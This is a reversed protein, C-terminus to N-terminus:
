EPLASEGEVLRGVLRGSGDFGGASVYGRQGAHRFARLEIGATGSERLVVVIPNGQEPQVVWGTLRGQPVFEDVIRDEGTGDRVLVVWRHGDEWLIKGGPGLEVDARLEVDELAGDGDLDAHTRAIKVPPLPAAGSLTIDSEACRTVSIAIAGLAAFSFGLPGVMGVAEIHSSALDITRKVGNAWHREM